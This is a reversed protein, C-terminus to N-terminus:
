LSGAAHNHILDFDERPCFIALNSAHRCRPFSGKKVIRHLDDTEPVFSTKRPLRRSRTVEIGREVLGDALLSVMRRSPGEHGLHTARRRVVGDCHAYRYIGKQSFSKIPSDKQGISNSKEVNRLFRLFGGIIADKRKTAAFPANQV